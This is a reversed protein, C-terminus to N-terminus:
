CCPSESDTCADTSTCGLDVQAFLRQGSLAEHLVVGAAWVDARADIEEIGVEGAALEPSMYGSAWAADLPLDEAASRALRRCLAPLRIDTLVARNDRMVINAPTMGRHAIPPDQSHLLRLGELLDMILSAASLWSLARGDMELASSLPLWALRRLPQRALVSELSFGEVYETIVAWGGDATRACDRFAAVFPSGAAGLGRLESQYRLVLAEPADRRGVRVAVRARQGAAEEALWVSRGRGLARSM